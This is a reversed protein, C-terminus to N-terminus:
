AIELDDEMFWVFKFESAPYRVEYRVGLENIQIGTVRGVTNIEPINVRDGVDFKFEMKTSNM